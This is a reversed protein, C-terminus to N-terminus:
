GVTAQQRIGTGRDGTKYVVRLQMQYRAASSGVAVPCATLAPAVATVEGGDWEPLERADNRRVIWEFIRQFVGLNDLNGAVDAGYDMRAALVYLQEQRPLLEMEGLINERYKLASPVNDLTYGGPADGLYDAGFLGASGAIEPCGRLWARVAAANNTDM